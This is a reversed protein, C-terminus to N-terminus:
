SAVVVLVIVVVLRMNVSGNISIMDICVLYFCYYFNSDYVCVKNNENRQPDQQMEFHRTKLFRGSYFDECTIKLDM